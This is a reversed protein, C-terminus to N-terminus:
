FTRWLGTPSRIRTNSRPTKHSHWSVDTSYFYRHLFILWDLPLVFTGKELFRTLVLVVVVLTALLLKAYQWDQFGTVSHFTWCKPVFVTPSPLYWCLQVYLNICVCWYLRQWDFFSALFFRGPWFPPSLLSIVFCLDSPVCRSALGDNLAAQFALFCYCLRTFTPLSDLQFWRQALFGSPFRPVLYCAVSTPARLSFDWTLVVCCSIGWATQDTKHMDVRDGTKFWLTFSVFNQCPVTPSTFILLTPCFFARTSAYVGICVLKGTSSVLWFISVPM